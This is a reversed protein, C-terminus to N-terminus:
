GKEGQGRAYVDDYRVIDDEGLYSGTQVEILVMPLKGPNKLRHLAGLPIYVSENESIIKVHDGITVEATGSVVIWHEARHHHSQLSLSAGPKVYIRKVQFRDGIALSEFWGWPRHDNLFSTAQTASKAKLLDVARKVDQARSMDAVLVADNMAIAIVNKLGIGVLELRNSDSRLLTDNCDITSVSGSTVVGNTDAKGERWVADWGGLDSWGEEFPVVSLNDAKEMIAYDISINEVAGWAKEELRVFTLDPQSNSLAASVPELLHKAHKNFAAILDKVCFLFIGSNWLFAEDEIMEAALNIEPKEIFRRLKVPDGASKEALELYGYGTEPHTPKVGFTVLQGEDVAKLGRQIAVEFAGTDPILHDSPSVLVVANPDKKASYLAAALIAPATNKGNPEILIAEPLVGVAKLQEAAIFRFDSHTVVIPSNYNKGSTRVASSQFLTEDSILPVFQKPYAKRSLPWLRTGSGGCLIIPTIM